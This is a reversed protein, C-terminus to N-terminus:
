GGSSLRQREALVAVLVARVGARDLGVLLDANDAIKNMGMTLLESRRLPSSLEEHHVRRLLEKLDEDSLRSLGHAPFM